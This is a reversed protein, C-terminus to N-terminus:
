RDETVQCLIKLTQQINYCIDSGCGKKHTFLIGKYTYVVNQKEMKRRIFKQTTEVKQSNHDHQESCLHIFIQELEYM